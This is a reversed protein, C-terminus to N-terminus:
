DKKEINLQLLAKVIQSAYKTTLELTDIKVGISFLTELKFKPNFRQNLRLFAFNTKFEKSTQKKLKPDYCYLLKM